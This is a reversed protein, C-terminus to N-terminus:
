LSLLGARLAKIVAEFTTRSDTRLRINILHHNVTKPKIGLLTAIEGESLFQTIMLQLIQKQRKTLRM